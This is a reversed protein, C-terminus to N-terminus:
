PSEHEKKTPRELHLIPIATPVRSGDIYNPFSLLFDGYLDLLTDVLDENQVILFNHWGM